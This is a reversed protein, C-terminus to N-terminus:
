KEAGAVTAPSAVAHCAAVYVFAASTRMHTLIMCCARVSNSRVRTGAVGSPRAATDDTVVDVLTHTCRVAVGVGVTGVRIARVVTGALRAIIPSAHGALIHVFTGSVRVVAFM